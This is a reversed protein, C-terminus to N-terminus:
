RNECYNVMLVLSESNKKKSAGLRKMAVMLINKLKIYIHKLEPKITFNAVFASIHCIIVLKYIFVKCLNDDNITILNCINFFDLM